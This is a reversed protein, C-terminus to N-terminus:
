ANQWALSRIAGDAHRSLAALMNNRTPDPAAALAKVFWPRADDLCGSDALMAAYNYAGRFYGGAASRRYWDRALSMDVSVGWGNEYCRGVLSMARAHGNVAAKVYWAFAADANRAVGNGNLLMHGLNYQAWDIGAEAAIRYHHAAARYNQAIGWGNEYCRGLMNHAEADSSQALQSFWKFAASRDQAIGEGELLMRGLRLQAQPIGCAAAATIWAQADAGAIAARLKEPGMTTLAALRWIERSLARAGPDKVARGM